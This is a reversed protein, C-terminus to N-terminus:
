IGKLYITLCHPETSLPQRLEVIPRLPKGAAEIMRGIQRAVDDIVEYGAATYRGDETMTEDALARDEGAAGAGIIAGEPKLANRIDHAAEEAKGAGARYGEAYGIDKMAQLATAIVQKWDRRPNQDLALLMNNVAIESPTPGSKFRNEDM